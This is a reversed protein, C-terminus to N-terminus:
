TEKTESETWTKLAERTKKMTFLMSLSRRRINLYTEELEKRTEPLYYGTLGSCILAGGRRADEVISGVGRTSTGLSEALRAASTGNKKGRRLLSLLEVEKSM